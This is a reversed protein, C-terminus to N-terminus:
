TAALLQKFVWAEFPRKCGVLRRPLSSTEWYSLPGTEEAPREQPEELDVVQERTPSRQVDSDKGRVQPFLERFVARQVPGLVALFTPNHLSPITRRRCQGQMPRTWRGQSQRKLYSRALM